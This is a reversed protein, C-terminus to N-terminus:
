PWPLLSGNEEAGNYDPGEAKDFLLVFGPKIRINQYKSVKPKKKGIQKGWPLACFFVLMWFDYAKIDTSRQAGLQDM